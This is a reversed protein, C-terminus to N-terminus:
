RPYVPRAASTTALAATSGSSDNPTLQDAPENVVAEAKAMRVDMLALPRTELLVQQLAWISEREATTYKGAVYQLMSM